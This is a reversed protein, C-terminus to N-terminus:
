SKFLMAEVYKKYNFILFDIITALFLLGISLLIYLYNVGYILTRRSFRLQITYKIFHWLKNNNHECLCALLGKGSWQSGTCM